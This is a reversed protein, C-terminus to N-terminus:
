IKMGLLSAALLELPRPGVLALDAAWVAVAMMCAGGAINLWTGLASRRQGALSASSGYPNGRAAEIGVKRLWNGVALAVFALIFLWLM